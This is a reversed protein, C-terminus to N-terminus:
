SGQEKRTHLETIDTSFFCLSKKNILVPCVLISLTLCLEFLHAFSGVRQTVRALDEIM